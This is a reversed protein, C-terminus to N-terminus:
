KVASESELRRAAQIFLILSPTYNSGNGIPSGDFPNIEQTFKNDFKMFAKLWRRLLENLEAGRGYDEMWLLARLATLAQSHSGWSNKPFNHVFHPDSPSMSPMPYPTWFESESRFYREYISDFEQQDLARNLFLRTIHESRYKRFGSMDRDYYFDDQPDYLHKKIKARLDAAKELWLSEERSKGLKAALEALALRGGHLLASLDVSLVPMVPLDPMNGADKGPCSHPIGDDMVRPSNDHGTDWECYMEALGTGSKNRYKGFWEDYRVGTQYIQAFCEEGKGLKVALDLACRAFPYVSQMHWYRVADTLTKGPTPLAIMFPLLGDERQFDMFVQQSAWAAEPEYEALFLNDQNHELWIGNYAEGAILLPTHFQEFKRINRLLAKEAAAAKDKVLLRENESLQNCNNVSSM